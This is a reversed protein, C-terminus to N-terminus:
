VYRKAGCAECKLVMARGSKELKTDPKGCEKCFVFQNAYSLIKQNIIDESLKRQLILKNGQISGPTALASYLFKAVHKPERRLAKTIENFNKIMTQNGALSIVVKPIEFREKHAGKEPLEEFAKKLLQEYDM